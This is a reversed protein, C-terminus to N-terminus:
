DGSLQDWGFIPLPQIGLVKKKEGANVVVSLTCLCFRTWLEHFGM